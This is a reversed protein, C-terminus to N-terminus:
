KKEVLELTDVLLVVKIKGTLTRFHVDYEDGKTKDTYHTMAIAPTDDIISAKESDTLYSLAAAIIEENSPYKKEPMSAASSQQEGPFYPETYGDPYTYTAPEGGLEPALATEGALPNKKKTSAVTERYIETNTLYEVDEETASEANEPSYGFQKQPFADEGGCKSFTEEVIGEADVVFTTKENEKADDEARLLDEITEDHPLAGNYYIGTEGSGGADASKLPKIASAAVTLCLATCGLSVATIITNKRKKLLADRKAFVSKEFEERSKM